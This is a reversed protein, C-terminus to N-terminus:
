RNISNEPLAAPALGRQAAICVECRGTALQRVELQPFGWDRIQRCWGPIRDAQDYRGLKMTLLMGRIEIDRHRVINEVTVLTKDPRVNSDVLLWRAEGYARRKIDGGRARIHQFQPHDAVRPDMEAPDVGIVRLGLELLRQSAGGPASGIEVVVDGPAMPLGSWLIAEAAKFYARSVVEAHKDLPPYGGPWRSPPQKGAFHWGVIWEGPDTMVIDLLADGAVATQNGRPTELLGGGHLRRAVDVVLADTLPEPGPEFGRQGVPLRDRSWLHLQAFAAPGPSSQRQRLELLKDALEGSHTAAIRRWSWSATRAFVGTPLAEVESGDRKFSVFGPRSFALRWGQTALEM